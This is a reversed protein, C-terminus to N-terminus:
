LDVKFAVVPYLGATAAVAKRVRGLTVGSKATTAAVNGATSASTAVLDGVALAGGGDTIMYVPGQTLIWGYYGTPINTLAVGAVGAVDTTAASPLSIYHATTTEIVAMGRSITSGTNNYVLRMTSDVYMVMESVATTTGNASDYYKALSADTIKRRVGLRHGQPVSATAALTELDLIIPEAYSM